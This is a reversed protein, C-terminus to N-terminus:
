KKNEIAYVPFVVVCDQPAGLEKGNQCLQFGRKRLDEGAPSDLLRLLVDNPTTWFGGSPILGAESFLPTSPKLQEYRM